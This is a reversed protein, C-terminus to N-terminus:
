SRPDALTVLSLCPHRHRLSDDKVFHGQLYFATQQCGSCGIAVVLPTPLGPAYMQHFRMQDKSNALQKPIQQRFSRAQASRRCIERDHRSPKAAM